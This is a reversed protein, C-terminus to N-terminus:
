EAVSRAQPSVRKKKSTPKMGALLSRAYEQQEPTVEGCPQGRLDYRPGGAAIARLYRPTQSLSALARAIHKATLPLQRAAADARMDDGIGMKLPKVEQRNFVQPYHSQARQIHPSKWGGAGPRSEKAQKAAGTPRPAIKAPTVTCPSPKTVAPAPEAQQRMQQKVQQLQEQITDM